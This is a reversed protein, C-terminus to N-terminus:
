KMRGDSPRRRRENEREKKLATVQHRDLVLNRGFTGLPTIKGQSILNHLYPFSIGLEQAAERSSITNVNIM